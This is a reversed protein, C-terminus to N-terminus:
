NRFEVSHFQLLGDAASAAYAEPRRRPREPPLNRGFRASWRALLHHFLKTICVLFTKRERMPRKEIQGDTPRQPFLQM